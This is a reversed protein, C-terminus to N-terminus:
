GVVLSAWPDLRSALALRPRTVSRLVLRGLAAWRMRRARDRPDLQSHPEEKSRDPERGAPPHELRVGCGSPGNPLDAAKAPDRPERATPAACQGVWGMTGDASGKVAEDPLVRDRQSAGPALIGHYRVQHGRPPPILPVLREIVESREM